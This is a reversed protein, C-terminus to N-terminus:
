CLEGSGCYNQERTLINIHINIKLLGCMKGYHSVFQLFVEQKTQSIRESTSFVIFEVSFFSNLQYFYYSCHYSKQPHHTRLQDTFLFGM